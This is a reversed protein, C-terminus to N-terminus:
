FNYSLALQNMNLSSNADYLSANSQHYYVYELGWNRGLAYQLGLKSSLLFSGGLNHDGFQTAGEMYGAGFGVIFVVKEHPSIYLQSMLSFRGTDVINCSHDRLLAGSWELGTSIKWSDAVVTSYSLPYRWFLEFQEIDTNGLFQLGYGVGVQGAMGAFASPVALFIALLFFLLLNKIHM